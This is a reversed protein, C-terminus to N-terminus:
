GYAGGKSFGSVKSVRLSSDRIHGCAGGGGRALRRM